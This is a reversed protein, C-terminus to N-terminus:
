KTKSLICSECLVQMIGHNVQVFKFIKIEGSHVYGTAFFFPFPLNVLM